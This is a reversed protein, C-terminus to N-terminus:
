RNRCTIRSARRVGEQGGGSWWVQGVRGRNHINVTGCKIDRVVSLAVGEARMQECTQLASALDGSKAYADMLASYVFTNPAIGRRRM